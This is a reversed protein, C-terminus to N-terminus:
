LKDIKITVPHIEGLAKTNIKWGISVAIQSLLGIAEHVQQQALLPLESNSIKQEITKKALKNLETHNEPSFKNFKSEKLDYYEVQHDISIVEPEPFHEIVIEKTKNNAHIKVKKLDFGILSNAKITILAKKEFHILHLFRKSDQYNVIETFDGQVSVLKSVVKIKELLVSAETKQRKKKHVTDRVSLYLAGLLLILIITLMEIM